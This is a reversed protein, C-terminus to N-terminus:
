FAVGHPSFKEIEEHHEVWSREEIGTSKKSFLPENLLLITYLTM